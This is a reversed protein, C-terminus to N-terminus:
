STLLFAMESISTKGFQELAPDIVPICRADPNVPCPECSAQSDIHPKAAGCGKCLHEVSGISDCIVM